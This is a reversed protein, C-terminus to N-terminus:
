AAAADAAYRGFFAGPSMAGQLRLQPAAGTLRVYARGRRQVHFEEGAAAREMYWGLRNRLEEAGIVVGTSPPPTSSAPSSGAVEVTGRYREELQAIAGSFEFDSALNIFARQGNRAPAIRLYIARRDAVLTSPLLYCTDNGGCYVALLDIEDETYNRRVFKQPGYWTSTLNVKIVGADPDLNGWKCQVRLIHPGIEFGMDYRGHEAVPKLVPIGLKTAALEIALEAVAGKINPSQVFM